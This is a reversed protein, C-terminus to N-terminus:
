RQDGPSTLQHWIKSPNEAVEGMTESAAEHSTSPAADNASAENRPLSQEISDNVSPDSSEPALGVETDQVPPEPDPPEYVEPSESAEDSVLAEESLEEPTPAEESSIRSDSRAETMPEDMDAHGSASPAPDGVAAISESPIEISETPTETPDAPSGNGLTAMSTTPETMDVDVDVEERLRTEEHVSDAIEQQIRAMQDQLLQLRLQQERRQAEILPLRESAARSRRRRDVDMSTGRTKPLVASVPSSAIAPKLASFPEPTPGGSSGIRIAAKVDPTPSSLSPSQKMKKRAEAEAIKRKMEEIQKNMKELNENKADVGNQGVPPTVVNPSGFPRSSTHSSLPGQDRFSTTRAPMAARLVPSSLANSEIEIEEDEEDDSVDIFHQKTDRLQGFPRKLSSSENLDAALPRKNTNAQKGDTASPTAELNRADASASQERPEHQRLATPDGPPSKITTKTADPNTQNPMLGQRSKHLADMKQQLLKSLDSPPRSSTAKEPSPIAAVAPEPPAIVPATTKKAALLRAIRDKREEAKSLTKQPAATEVIEGEESQPSKEAESPLSAMSSGMANTPADQATAKRVNPVELGLEQFLSQLVVRDVGEEIYSQFSVQHPWLRAITEQAKSKASDLGLAPEELAM